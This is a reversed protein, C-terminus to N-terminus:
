TFVLEPKVQDFINRRSCQGLKLFHGIKLEGHFGAEEASLLKISLFLHDM